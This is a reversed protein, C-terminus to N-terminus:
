DKVSLNVYNQVDALYIKNGLRSFAYVKKSEDPLNEIVTITSSESSEHYEFLQNNKNITKARGPLYKGKDAAIVSVKTSQYGNDVASGITFVAIRSM